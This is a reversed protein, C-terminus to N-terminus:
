YDSSDDAEPQDPASVVEIGYSKDDHDTCDAQQEDVVECGDLELEGGNPWQGTIDSYTYTGKSFWGNWHRAVSMTAVLRYNKVSDQSPFANIEGDGDWTADHPWLFMVFIAIAIGVAWWVKKQQEETM